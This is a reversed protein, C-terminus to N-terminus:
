RQPDLLKKNRSAMRINIKRVEVKRKNAWDHMCRQLNWWKRRTKDLSDQRDEWTLWESKKTFDFMESPKKKGHGHIKWLKGKRFRHNRGIPSPDFGQYRTFGLIAPLHINMGSFIYRYTNVWVWNEGHNRGRQTGTKRWTCPRRGEEPEWRPAQVWGRPAGAVPPVPRWPAARGMTPAMTAMHSDLHNIM